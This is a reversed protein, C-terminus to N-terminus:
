ESGALQERNQGEALADISSSSPAHNVKAAAKGVNQIGFGTLLRFPENQKSQEIADLLKDTNKEKGVIGQEILEERYDKLATFIQSIMCIYDLRVLETVYVAGFGKIDM